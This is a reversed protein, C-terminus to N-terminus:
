RPRTLVMVVDEMETAGVTFTTTGNTRFGYSEYLSVARENEAWVTLFVRSANALRPHYLAAQLLRRGLGRGQLDPDVYLRHLAQDGPQPKVEPITMDGLQV